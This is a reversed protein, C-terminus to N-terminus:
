PSSSSSSSTLQETSSSSNSSSSSSTRYQSSSSNIDQRFFMKYSYVEADSPGSYAVRVIDGAYLNSFVVEGGVKLDSYYDFFGSMNKKELIWDGINSVSIHSLYAYSVDGSPIIFEDGYFFGLSDALNTASSQFYGYPYFKSLDGELSLSSSSTEFRETSSESESFRTIAFTHYGACIIQDLDSLDEIEIFSNANDEDGTGLQGYFNYGTGFVVGSISEVFSHHFGLSFDQPSTFGTSEFSSRDVNNGLGLQGLTNDGCCQLDGFADLIFVHSGGAEIRQPYSFGFVQELRNRNVNDGLGLQGHFNDGTSLVNGSSDEVYTFLSGCEIKRPCIINWEGFESRDVNDRLGLQGQSNHGVADVRGNKKEIILFDSGARIKKANTYKLPLQEFENRDVTDGLGLQGYVNRGTVWVTGDSKQIVTFHEGCVITKCNNFTSDLQVFVNRGVNDSLGLQGYDNRGAAWVTGDSRQIFSHHAGGTIIKFYKDDIQSTAFYLRDMNDGLGLQGYENHGALKLIASVSSSSSSTAVETSSSSESSSTESAETSSSSVSSVSSSSLIETSSSSQSSSNSSSSSSSQSSQDSSSSSLSSDSSSSSFDYSSSSTSSLEGSSESSGTIYESVTPAPSSGSGLAWTELVEDATYSASENNIWSNIYWEEDGNYYLFGNPGEYLNEGNHIGVLIYVGNLSDDGADEVLFKSPLGASRESVNDFISTIRIEYNEDETLGSVDWDYYGKQPDVRADILVFNDIGLNSNKYEIKYYRVGLNTNISEPKKWIIRLINDFIESKSPSIVIPSEEESLFENLGVTVSNLVPSDKHNESSLQIQIRFYRDDVSISFKGYKDSNFVSWSALDIDDSTESSKVRISVVNEDNNYYSSLNYYLYDSSEDFEQDFQIWGTYISSVPEFVIDGFSITFSDTDSIAADFSSSFYFHLDENSSIKADSFSSLLEWSDTNDWVYFSVTSGDRKIRLFGNLYSKAFSNAYLVTASDDELVETVFTVVGSEIGVGVRLNINTVSLDENNLGFYFLRDTTTTVTALDSYAVSVDFDGTVYSDSRLNNLLDNNNITLHLGNDVSISEGTEDVVKWYLDDIALGQFSHDLYLIKALGSDFFRIRNNTTTNWDAVSSIKKINSM